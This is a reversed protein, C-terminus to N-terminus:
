MEVFPVSDDGGGASEQSYTQVQDFKSAGIAAILFAVSLAILVIREVYHRKQPPSRRVIVTLADNTHWACEVWVDSSCLAM